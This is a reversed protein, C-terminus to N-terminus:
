QDRAFAVVFAVVATACVPVGTGRRHWLLLLTHTDSPGEAVVCVDKVTPVRPSPTLRMDLAGSAADTFIRTCGAGDLADHQLAPNQDSTSVRTYGVLSTSPQRV